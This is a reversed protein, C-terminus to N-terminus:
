PGPAECDAPAVTRAACAGGITTIEAETLHYDTLYDFAHKGGKTVRVSDHVHPAVAGLGTVFYRYPVSDGEAYCSNQTQRQRQGVRPEPPRGNQLQDLNTGIAATAVQTALLSTVVAWM